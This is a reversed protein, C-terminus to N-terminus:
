GHEAERKCLHIYITPQIKIRYLIKGLWLELRGRESPSQTYEQLSISLSPEQLYGMRLTAQRHWGIPPAQRLRIQIAITM